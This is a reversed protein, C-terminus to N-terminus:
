STFGSHGKGLLPPELFVHPFTGFDLDKWQKLKIVYTKASYGSFAYFYFYLLIIQFRVGRTYVTPFKPGSRESLDRDM